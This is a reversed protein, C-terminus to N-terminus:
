AFVSQTSIFTSYSIVAVRPLVNSQESWVRGQIITFWRGRYLHPFNSCVSFVRPRDLSRREKLTSRDSPLPLDTHTTFNIEVLDRLLGVRKRCFSINIKKKQPMHLRSAQLSEFHNKLSPVSPNRLPVCLPSLYFLWCVPWLPLVKDGSVMTIEPLRGRDMGSCCAFTRACCSDPAEVFIM